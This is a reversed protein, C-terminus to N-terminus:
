ELAPLGGRGAFPASRLVSRVIVPFEADHQGYHDGAAVEVITGVQHRELGLQPAGGPSGSSPVALMRDSASRRLLKRTTRSISNAGNVIFTTNLM